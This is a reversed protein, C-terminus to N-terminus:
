NSFWKKRVSRGLVLLGSFLMLFTSPESVSTSFEQTLNGIHGTVQRVLNEESFKSGSNSYPGIAAPDDVWVEFQGFSGGPGGTYHLTHVSNDFDITLSSGNKIEDSNGERGFTGFIDVGFQEPSGLVTPTTFTIKLSFEDVGGSTGYTDNCSTDVCKHLTFTGLDTLSTWGPGVPVDLSFSAGAFTLSFIATPSSANTDGAITIAQATGDFGLAGVFLSAAVFLNQIKRKMRMTSEGAVFKAKLPHSHLVQAM